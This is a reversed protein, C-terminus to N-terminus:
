RFTGSGYGQEGDEYEFTYAPMRLAPLLLSPNLDVGIDMGVLTYGRVDAEGRSGGVVAEHEAGGVIDAPIDNRQVPCVDVIGLKLFQGCSIHHIDRLHLLIKDILRFAVGHVHIGLSEHLIAHLVDDETLMDLISIVDYVM